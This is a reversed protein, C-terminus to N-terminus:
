IRDDGLLTVLRDMMGTFRVFDYKEPTATFWDDDELNFLTEEMEGLVQVIQAHHVPRMGLDQAAMGYLASMARWAQEAGRFGITGIYANDSAIARIMGYVDTRGFRTRAATEALEEALAAVESAAAMVKGRDGGALTYQTRLVSIASELRAFKGPDLIRRALSRCVAWPAANWAPMGPTGVYGRKQRPGTEKGDFDVQHHCAYCEFHALEIGGSSEAWRSIRRASERLMVAQGVAWARAHFATGEDEELYCRENRWHSPVGVMDTVFEFPLEPHGAAMMVHTVNRDENGVHCSMCLEARRILNRTDYMGGAAKEAATLDTWSPGTHALGWHQARGHCAECSVGEEIKFRAGRKEPQVSTSHCSLCDQRKTPVSGSRDLEDLIAAMRISKPSELQKYAQNHKGTGNWYWVSWERRVTSEGSKPLGDGHCGSNSCAISGVADLDAQGLNFSRYDLGAPPATPAVAEQESEAIGGAAWVGASFFVILGLARRVIMEGKRAVVRAGVWSETARLLLM